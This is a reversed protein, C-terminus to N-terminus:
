KKKPFEFNTNVFKKAIDLLTKTSLEEEVKKNFRRIAEEYDEEKMFLGIYKGSGVGMESVEKTFNYITRIVYEYDRFWELCLFADRDSSRDVIQVLKVVERNTNEEMYKTAIKQLYEDQAM